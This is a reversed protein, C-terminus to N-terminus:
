QTTVKKRYEDLRYLLTADDIIFKYGGTVADNGLMQKGTHYRKKTSPDHYVRTGQMVIAHSGGEYNLSEVSAIWFGDMWIADKRSGYVIDIGFQRLFAAWVGHWAASHDNPLIEPPLQFVTAFCARFCDGIKNDVIQQM